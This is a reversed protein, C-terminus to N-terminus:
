LDERTKEIHECFMEFDKISMNFRINHWHIHIGEGINDEIVFKKVGIAPVLGIESRALEFVLLNM